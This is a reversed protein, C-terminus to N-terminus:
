CEGGRHADEGYACNAQEEGRGNEGLGGESLVGGGGAGGEEHVVLEYTGVFGVFGQLEVVGSGGALAGESGDEGFAVACECVEAHLGGFFEAGVDSVGHEVCEVGGGGVVDVGGFDGDGAVGGGDEEGARVV